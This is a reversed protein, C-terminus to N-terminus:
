ESDAQGSEGRYCIGISDLHRRVFEIAADYADEVARRDAGALGHEGNPISILKHEVNDRRLEAAMMVSQEHPVDTDEEGHIMLTPPYDPTVNKVPMYPVFKKQETHPDWGSVAKPWLGQQRCFQYFAGGNGNRDRADAVPPGDVQQFAEERSLKIRHHCPHPSPSSYWPGVLDGYGWLAVIADPRPKVRFGAMLTMYGGASGGTVALRDPDAHFLEPGKERIWRFADELDEIIAPLKTEPALRYDISVVIYGADLFAKKLRGSVGERHGNILAGGHIWVVVARRTDDDERFVDAKIDLNKVTKYTYTQKKIEAVSEGCAFLGGVAVVASVRLLAM